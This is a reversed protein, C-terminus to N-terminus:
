GQIVEFRCIDKLCCNCCVPQKRCCEKAHRVILAHCENFLRTDLPLNATFFAQYGDYSDVASALGLRSIIRRTYADIVFVPKDGAYLLISDATEPGIGHVALLESRLSGTDIAFMKELNNNYTVALWTVFAKLKAAKANYYGTSRILQALEDQPINRIASPSMVGANKLNAIAKEVNQWAASQTLIAGVIVEFPSDGPWWHQLGYREYLRRYILLLTQTNSSTL